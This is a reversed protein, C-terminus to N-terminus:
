YNQLLNFNFILYNLHFVIPKKPSIKRLYEQVETDNIDSIDCENPSGIVDFIVSLQDVRDKDNELHLLLPDKGDTAKDLKDGSLPYCSKGPFLAVRDHHNPVSEIQMGLLEAFICGVSWVDVASTYEQLLIM